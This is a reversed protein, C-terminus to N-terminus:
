RPWKGPASPRERLAREVLEHKMALRTFAKELTELERGLQQERESRVPGVRLATEIGELAQSRWREITEAQVGFRLALQDISAKGALLQLVAQTREEATRRGPRGREPSQRSAPESQEGGLEPAVPEGELEWGIRARKKRPM